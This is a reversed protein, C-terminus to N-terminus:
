KAKQKMERMWDLFISINTIQAFANKSLDKEKWSKVYDNSLCPLGKIFEEFDAPKNAYREDFSDAQAEKEEDTCNPLRYLCHELNIGFYFLRYPIKVKKLVFENRSFLVNINMKKALRVRFLRKPDDKHIIQAPPDYVVDHSSLNKRYSSEQAFCADLDCLQAVALLDRPLLKKDHLFASIENGITARIKSPPIIRKCDDIVTKDGHLVDFRANDDSFSRLFSRLSNEFATQDSPGEVLLLVIKTIKSKQATSEM